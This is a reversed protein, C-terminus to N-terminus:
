HENHMSAVDERAFKTVRFVEAKGRLLTPVVMRAQSEDEAEIIAWGCHNESECGWDFHTLYGQALVQDLIM